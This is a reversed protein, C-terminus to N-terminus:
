WSRRVALNWYSVFFVLWLLTSWVDDEVIADMERPMLFNNVDGRLSVWLWWCYCNLLDYLVTILTRYYFKYRIDNSHYLWSHILFQLKECGREGETLLALLDQHHSSMFMFNPWNIRLFIMLNTAVLHWIRVSFHVLNSKPEPEAM